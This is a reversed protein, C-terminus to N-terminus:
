RRGGGGASSAAACEKLFSIGIPLLIREWQMPEHHFWGLIANLNEMTFNGYKFFFLLGISVAISIGCILKKLGAKETKCMWRVLFFNIIMSVIFLVIFEPAGYAYFLLSAFLLVYNRAKRPTLFYVLFFIPM